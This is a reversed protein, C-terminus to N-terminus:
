DHRKLWESLLKNCEEPKELHHCHSGDKVIYLESGPVLSQYYAATEPRAEDYEGATFLVPVTITKLKDFVDHNKLTGTATFESPGWMYNYVEVGMVEFTKLLSPPWPDLRCNFNQYFVDMANLYGESEFDGKAEAEEVTKRIEEPLTKLLEKADAIWRQTGMFPGALILSKIGEPEKLSAYYEVALMSGWSQGLIHLEKLGLADRVAQVEGVFREVTWLSKRDEETTISSGCGLQDYFIVPRESALAELSDLYHHAMGPGGHLLLLPTAEKDMGAMRYWVLGGEVPIYGEQATVTPGAFSASALLLLVLGLILALGTAMSQKKMVSGGEVSIESLKVITGGEPATLSRSFPCVPSVIGHLFALATQCLM